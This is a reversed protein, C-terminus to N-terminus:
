VRSGFANVTRGGMSICAGRKWSNNEHDAYWPGRLEQGAICGKTSYFYAKQNYGGYVEVRVSKPAFDTTACTNDYINRRQSAGGCNEGKYLTLVYGSTTSSLGLGVILMSSLQM